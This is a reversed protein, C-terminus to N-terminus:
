EGTAQKQAKLSTRYFTMYAAKVQPQRSLLRTVKYQDAQNGGISAYFLGVYEEAAVWKGGTVREIEGISAAQAFDLENPCSELISFLMNLPELICYRDPVRQRRILIHHAAAYQALEEIWGVEGKVRSQQLRAEHWSRFKESTEDIGRKGDIVEADLLSVSVASNITRAPIGFERSLESVSKM